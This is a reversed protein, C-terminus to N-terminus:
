ARESAPPTDLFRARLEPTPVLCQESRDFLLYRNRAFARYLPDRLAPFSCSHRL